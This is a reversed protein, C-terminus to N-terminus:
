GSTARPLLTALIRSAEESTAPRPRNESPDIYAPRFSVRPPEAPSLEIVAVATEFPASGLTALDDLDLDFVFNGLSYLIPRERYWEVPQLVHPHSGIVADAGAEIAAYAVARQLATPQRTYEVGAHMFVLTFDATPAARLVDARVAEPDALAVGPSAGRAFVSEDVGCYSLAAIRKGRVQAIYAARATAEDSGAGVAPVGARRLTALTDELSVAGFDVAHNNGLTVLGFGAAPLGASLEPPTRFTYMKTLPAGRTTFTGEMNGVLFDVGEFLGRVRQFPYAAGYQQMLTTIDRAFMLDGVAGIRVVSDAGRTSTAPTAGPTPVEPTGTAASEIRVAPDDSACGLVGAVVSAFASELFARRGLRM